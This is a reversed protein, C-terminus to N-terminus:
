NRSYSGSGYPLNTGPTLNFMQTGFYLCVQLWSESSCDLGVTLIVSSKIQCGFQQEIFSINSNLVFRSSHETCSLFIPSLCLDCPILAKKHGNRSGKAIYYKKFYLVHVSFHM